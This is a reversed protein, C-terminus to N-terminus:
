KAMIYIYVIISIILMIFGATIYFGSRALGEHTDDMALDPESM